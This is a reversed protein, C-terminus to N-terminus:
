SDSRNRPDNLMDNYSQRQLLFALTSAILFIWFAWLSTVMISPDSSECSWPSAAYGLCAWGVMISRLFYKSVYRRRLEASRLANDPEWFSPKPNRKAKLNLKVFSRIIKRLWTWGIDICHFLDSLLRGAVTGLIFSSGIVIASIVAIQATTIGSIIKPDINSLDLRLSRIIWFAIASLYLFGTIIQEPLMGRTDM